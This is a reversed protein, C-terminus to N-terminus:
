LQLGSFMLRSPRLTFAPPKILNAHYLLATTVLGADTMLNEQWSGPKAPFIDFAAASLEQTKAGTDGCASLAAEARWPKLGNLLIKCSFFFIGFFKCLSQKSIERLGM